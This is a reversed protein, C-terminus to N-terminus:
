NQSNDKVGLMWKFHHQSPDRFYAVFVKAANIANPPINAEPVRQARTAIQACATSNHTLDDAIAGLYVFLVFKEKKSLGNGITSNMADLM